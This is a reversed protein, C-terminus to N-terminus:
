FDHVNCIHDPFVYRIRSGKVSVYRSGFVQLKLRGDPMTKIVNCHMLYRICSSGLRHRCKLYYLGEWEEPKDKCIHFKM